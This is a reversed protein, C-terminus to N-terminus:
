QLGAMRRQVGAAFEREVAATIEDERERQAEPTAAYLYEGDTALLRQVRVDIMREVEGSYQM